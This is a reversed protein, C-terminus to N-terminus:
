GYNYYEMISEIIIFDLRDDIDVSREKPVIVAGSNGFILSNGEKPLREIYFAYVAGSLQYAPSLLQRPNWPNADKIFAEPKGNNIKWARTPNLDAEKFTAVSDYNEIELMSICRNIDDLNRLPSTPELLVFIDPREGEGILQKHLERLTDIVLARDTALHAPREYYEAGYKKGIRGINESDTSVIVRNIKQANLALEISYTILPKGKLPQINKEPVSKSGGRAPIIAIVRKNNKM